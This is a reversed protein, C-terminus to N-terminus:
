YHRVLGATVLPTFQHQNMILTLFMFYLLTSPKFLFIIFLQHCLCSQCKKSFWLTLQRVFLLSIFFSCLISDFQNKKVLLVAFASRRDFNFIFYIFQSGNKSLGLLPTATALSVLQNQKMGSKNNNRRLIQNKERMKRRNREECVCVCVSYSM